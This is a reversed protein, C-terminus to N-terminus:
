IHMYEFYQGFSFNDIHLLIKKNAFQPGWLELAIVVLILELFTVDALISSKEWIDPWGYYVWQCAFYAGCGLLAGGAGDTYLDLTANCFWEKEPFLTVGNFNELFHLWMSMDERLSKNIRIHHHKEKIGCMSDYMRRLFARGPRVARCVFNLSGTLIQLDHLTVKKREMISKLLTILKVIKENPIRHCYDVSDIELGLFTLRTLPGVTKESAVPVGIENCLDTFVSM